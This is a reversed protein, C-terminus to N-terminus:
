FTLPELRYQQQIFALRFEPSDEGGSSLVADYDDRTITVHLIQAGRLRAIEVLATNFLQHPNLGREPNFYRATREDPFDPVLFQQGRLFDPLHNQAWAEALAKADKWLM